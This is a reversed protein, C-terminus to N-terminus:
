PNVKPRFFLDDAADAAADLEASNWHEDLIVKIKQAEWERLKIELEEEIEDNQAGANPVFWLQLLFIVAFIILNKKNKINM